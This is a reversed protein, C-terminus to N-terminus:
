FKWEVGVRFFRMPLPSTRSAFAPLRMSDADDTFTLALGVTPRRPPPKEKELLQAYATGTALCLLITALAKMRAM